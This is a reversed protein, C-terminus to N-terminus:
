LSMSDGLRDELCELRRTKFCFSGTDREENKRQGEDEDVLETPQCLWCATYKCMGSVERGQTLLIQAPLVQSIKKGEPILQITKRGLNATVITDTKDPCSTLERSSGMDTWRSIYFTDEHLVATEQPNPDEAYPQLENLTPANVVYKHPIDTPEIRSIGDAPNNWIGPCHIVTM